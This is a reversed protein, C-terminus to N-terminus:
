FVRLAKLTRRLLRSVRGAGSGAPEGPWKGEPPCSARRRPALRPAPDGAPNRIRAAVYDLTQSKLLYDSAGECFARERMDRSSCATFMLVRTSRTLSKIPRVADLGNHGGMQV